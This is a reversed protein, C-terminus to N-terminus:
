FVVLICALMFRFFIARIMKMVIDNPHNLMMPDEIIRGNKNANRSAVNKYGM